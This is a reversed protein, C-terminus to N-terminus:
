RPRRRMSRSGYTMQKRVGPSYSPAAMMQHTMTLEDAM